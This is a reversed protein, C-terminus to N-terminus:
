DKEVICKYYLYLKEEPEGDFDKDDLFAKALEAYVEPRDFGYKKAVMCYDSYMMNMALCFVAEGFSGVSIGSQKAYQEVQEKTFHEGRSGDENIMSRKWRDIDRQSFYDTDYEGRDRMYRGRSDRRRRAYDRYENYEGYDQRMGNRAYDQRDYLRDDYSMDYRQPEYEGRGDYEYRVQGSDYEHRGRMNRGGRRDRENMRERAFDNM